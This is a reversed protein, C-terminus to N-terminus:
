KRSHGSLGPPVGSPSGVESRTLILIGLLPVAIAVVALGLGVPMRSAVAAILASGLIVPALRRVPYSTISRLPGRTRVLVWFLGYSGATSLAAGRVGDVLVAGLTLPLCLAAALLFTAALAKSNLTLEFGISEFYALRYFLLGLGVLVPVGLPVAYDAGGIITTMAQGAVALAAVITAGFVLFGDMARRLLRKVEQAQGAEWGAVLSPYVAYHIAMAVLSVVADSVLYAVAYQGAARSGALVALAIRDTGALVVFSSSVGILPVGYRLVQRWRGRDILPFSSRLRGRGLVLVLPVLALAYGVLAGAASGVALAGLALGFAKVLSHSVQSTATARVREKVYLTTLLYQFVTFAATMAITAAVPAWWGHLSLSWVALTLVGLGAIAVTTAMVFTLGLTARLLRDPEPGRSVTAYLRRIAGTTPDAALTLLLGHLSLCVAYVGFQASGLTRALVPTVAFGLGAPVIYSPLYAVFTSRLRRTPHRDHAGALSIPPDAM